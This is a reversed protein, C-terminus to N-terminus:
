SLFSGVLDGQAERVAVLDSDLLRDYRETMSAQKHRTVHRLNSDSVRRRLNSNAFARWSHFGIYREIRHAEDIGIVAMAEYLGDRIIKASVPFEPDNGFFVFPGGFTNAKQLSMLALGVSCPLPITGFSGCKPSVSGGETDQWNRRVHLIGEGSAELELADFQLGRVEGLRLGTASALLSAVRAREDKWAVAFLRQAEEITLIGRERTTEKLQRIGEAPNSMIIQLRKAERFGIAVAQLASNITRPAIGEDFLSLVWNELDATTIANLRQSPFRPAFFRRVFSNNNKLYLTSISEGRAKKGLVYPSAETWFERLWEAALPSSSRSSKRAVPIGDRAWGLVVATAENRDRKRTSHATGYCGREPNWLQAYYIQGRRFFVFPARAM